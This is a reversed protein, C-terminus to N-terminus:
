FNFVGFHKMKCIQGVMDGRKQTLVYIPSDSNSAAVKLLISRM